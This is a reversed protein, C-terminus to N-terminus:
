QGIRRVSYGHARLLAPLGDPGVLHGAGVAVLPRERARLLPVLRRVWARNRRVLLADRIERDEMAGTVTAKEIAAEDGSLWARLLANADERAEDRDMIAENLLVRQDKESLRDFIGLQVEAGEFELVERGEFERVVMRDVGNAPDGLSNVQALMLAAAWTEIARFDGSDRGSRAIMADLQARKSPPVRQELAPLGPTTALQAFLRAIAERDELGAIEVVLRDANDVVTDIAASRWELDDPLLHITGLMWGEVAGDPGTVEYLLPSPPPAPEEEAAVCGTLAALLAGALLARVAAIV